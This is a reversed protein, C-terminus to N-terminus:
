RTARRFGGAGLWRVLAVVADSDPLRYDPQVGVPAYPAVCISRGIGRLSRFADEDTVDDGIFVARVRAPWDAGFRKGLLWLAAHGKHWNASPRGELVLKGRVVRLRRRRLVALARQVAAGRDDEAVSRYHFAITPGKLEVQAGPIRLEELAHATAEMTRRVRASAAHRFQLGPGEIEFGHNGVYTIGSLGVRERVDALARGSVITVDVGPARAATELAIRASESLRAAEPHDVIPTITGDFDLM